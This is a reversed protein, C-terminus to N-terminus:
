MAGTVPPTASRCCCRSGASAAEAFAEDCWPWWDVPNDAHQLLYPSTANRLRDAMDGIKGRRGASRRPVAAVPPLVRRPPGARSPRSPPRFVRRLSSGHTHSWKGARWGWARGRCGPGRCGAPRPGTRPAPRAARTRCRGASGRRAARAPALMDPEGRDVPVQLHEALVAPDVRDAIGAALGQVALASAVGVVMVQGAAVATVAHLHLPARHLAPGLLHGGLGAEGVDAVRDLQEAAARSHPAPRVRRGTRAAVPPGRDSSGSTRTWGPASRSAPPWSGPWASRPRRPDRALGRGAVAALGGRGQLAAARDAPPRGPLGPARDEARRPRAGRDRAARHGSIVRELEQGTLDGAM